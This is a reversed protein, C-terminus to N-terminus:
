FGAEREVIFEFTFPERVFLDNKKRGANANDCGKQLCFTM